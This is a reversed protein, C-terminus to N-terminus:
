DDKLKEEIKKKIEVNYPMPSNMIAKYHQYLAIKDKRLLYPKSLISEISYHIQAEVSDLLIKRMFKVGM